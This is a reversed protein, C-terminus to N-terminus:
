RHVEGILEGLRKQAFSKRKKYTVREIRNVQYLVIDVVIVSGSPVLQILNNSDVLSLVVLDLIQLLGIQIELRFEFLHIGWVGESMILTLKLTVILKHRNPSYFIEVFDFQSLSPKREIWSVKVVVLFILARPSISRLVLLLLISEVKVRM